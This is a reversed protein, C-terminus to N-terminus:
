SCRGVEHRMHMHLVSKDLIFLSRLELGAARFEAIRRQWAQQGLYEPPLIRSSPLMPDNGAAELWAQREAEARRLL